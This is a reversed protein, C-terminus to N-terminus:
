GEEPGVNKYKTKERLVKSSNVLCLHNNYLLFSKVTKGPYQITMVEQAQALWIICNRIEWYDPDKLNRKLFAPFPFSSVLFIKDIEPHGSIIKALEANIFGSVENQLIGCGSFAAIGGANYAITFDSNLGFGILSRFDVAGCINLTSNETEQDPFLELRHIWRRRVFHKAEEANRLTEGFKKDTQTEILKTVVQIKKGVKGLEQLPLKQAFDLVAMQTRFLGEVLKKKREETTM